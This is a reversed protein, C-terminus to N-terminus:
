WAVASAWRKLPALFRCSTRYMWGGFMEHSVEGAQENAWAYVNDPGLEFDLWEINFGDTHVTCQGRSM